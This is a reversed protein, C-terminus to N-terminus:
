AGALTRFLFLLIGIALIAGCGMSFVRATLRLIFRLVVWVLLLAGIILLLQTISQTDM